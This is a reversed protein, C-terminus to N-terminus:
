GSRPKRSKANRRLMTARSVCRRRPVCVWCSCVHARFARHSCHTLLRVLVAVFAAVLVSAPPEDGGGVKHLPFFSTNGEVIKAWVDSELGTLETKEKLSHCVL